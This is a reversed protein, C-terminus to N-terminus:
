INTKGHKENFEADSMAALFIGEVFAIIMPIWSLFFSLMLLLYAIGVGPKGLYFKHAGFGGVVIALIAAVIKNKGNEANKSGLFANAVNNSYQGQAAQRVGCKPCIEAKLKIVEGCDSCFKEDEKKTKVDM